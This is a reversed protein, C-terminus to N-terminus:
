AFYAWGYIMSVLVRSVFTIFGDWFETIFSSVALVGGCRLRFPPLQQFYFMGYGEQYDEKRLLFFLGEQNLRGRLGAWVEPLRANISIFGKNASVGARYHVANLRTSSNHPMAPRVFFNGSSSFHPSGKPSGNRRV